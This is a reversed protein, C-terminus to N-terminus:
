VSSLQMLRDPKAGVLTYPAATPERDFPGFEAAEVCEHEPPAVGVVLQAIRNRRRAPPAGQRREVQPVSRIRPTTTVAIVSMVVLDRLRTHTIHPHLHQRARRPGATPPPQIPFDRQLVQVQALAHVDGALDWRPESAGMRVNLVCGHGRSQLPAYTCQVEAETPQHVISM